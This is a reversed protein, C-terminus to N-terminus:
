LGRPDMPLTLRFRAGVQARPDLVLTGGHRAAIDRAIALGLGVGGGDRHTRAEDLRTFREFVREADAAAIGAGDDAVTLVANRESESLTVIVVSRAHRVANDLLNSVLRELQGPDGRVQVPRVASTEIRAGTERMRAVPRMVVEDLDVPVATPVLARADGRALLLLDDVLRQLSV